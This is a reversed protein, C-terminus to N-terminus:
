LKQCALAKTKTIKDIKSTITSSDKVYDVSDSMNHLLGPNESTGDGVLDKFYAEFDSYSEDFPKPGMQKFTNKHQEILKSRARAQTVMVSFIKVKHESKLQAALKLTDKPHSDTPYGDTIFIIIKTQEDEPKKEPIAQFMALASRLGEDYPTIGLPKRLVKLSKKFEEGETAVDSWKVSREENGLPFQAFSVYSEGSSDETGFSALLDSASSVAKERETQKVCEYVRDADSKGLPHKGLDKKSPCDSHWHSESNDVIFAVYSTKRGAKPCPVKIAFKDANQNTSDQLSAENCATLCAVLTLLGVLLWLWQYSM